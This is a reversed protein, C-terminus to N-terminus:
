PGDGWSSWCGGGAEGEQSLEGLPEFRRSVSGNECRLWCLALFLIATPDPFSLARSLYVM